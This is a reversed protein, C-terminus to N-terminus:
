RGAAVAAEDGDAQGDVPTVTKGDVLGLFGRTVVREGESLGELIEVRDALRRGSRVPVRHAKLQQDLRFVYEGERDRRLAAFPIVIRNFAEIHFAVRAFQGARAGEPVPKLEVEVRGQRTNPDLEPHIRLVRGDFRTDGLADIQVSVRDGPKVHPMVLESVTLEAVLSTPDVISLVHFNRQVFDGPEALRRTVLGDFPAAVRTYGLRTRLVTEEARAVQLATEARIYEDESVLSRKRLGGLRDINIEAQRRNAVVKDIEARLLKDDLELVIDGARVADGEFFPLAVIRGEEQTFVRVSRRSRLSGTYLSSMRLTSRAVDALEVLHQRPASAKRAPKDPEPACGNLGAPLLGALLAM